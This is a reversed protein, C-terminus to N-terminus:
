RVWMACEGILSRTLLDTVFPIQSSHSKHRFLIQLSFSSASSDSSFRDNISENNASRNASRNATPSDLIQQGPDGSRFQRALVALKTQAFRRLSSARRIPIPELFLSFPRQIRHWPQQLFASQTLHIRVGRITPPQEGTAFSYFYIFSILLHSM